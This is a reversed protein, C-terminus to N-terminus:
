SRKSLGLLNLLTRWALQFFAAIPSPPALVPPAQGTTNSSASTKAAPPVAQAAKAWSEFTEFFQGAMEKAVGAIMRQGLRAIQGGVQVDADYHFETGKASPALTLTADGNVFGPGGKGQLKLRIREPEVRELYDVSGKFSGSVVPLTVALEAEFHGPTTEELTQLGPTCGKLVTPDNIMRWAVDRPVAVDERGEIKV